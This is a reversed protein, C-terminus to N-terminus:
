LYIRVSNTQNAAEWLPISNTDLLTRFFGSSYNGANVVYNSEGPLGIAVWTWPYDVTNGLIPTWMLDYSASGIYNTTSISYINTGLSKITLVPPTSQSLGTLAAAVIMGGGCMGILKQWNNRITKM